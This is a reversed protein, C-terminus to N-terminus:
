CSIKMKFRGIAKLILFMIYLSFMNPSDVSALIKLRGTQNVSSSRMYTAETSYHSLMLTQMSDQPEIEYFGSPFPLRFIGIIRVGSVFDTM